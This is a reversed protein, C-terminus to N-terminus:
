QAPPVPINGPQPAPAYAPPMPPMYMGGGPPIPMNMQPPLGMRLILYDEYGLTKYGLEMVEIDNTVLLRNIAATFSSDAKVDVYEGNAAPKMHAYHYNILKVARDPESTRLRINGQCKKSLEEATIEETLIGNKIIGYVTSIKELEGLLHSSILFTVGMERNIKQIIDRVDRMGMPDLGNVPEDLVLLEPSGLLAIAIGLRQKMGLSFARVKKKGGNDLGVMNLLEGIQIDDGGCLISFRKMNEYATCDPYLGPSEILSGVRNLLLKNNVQGFLEINGETPDLLGLIVKMATTKGAGNPGIFGYIDGKKINLNLHDVVNRAGLKKSLNYTRLVYEEM